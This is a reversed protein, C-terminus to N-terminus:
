RDWADALGRMARGRTTTTTTSWTAGVVVVRVVCNNRNGMWERARASARGRVM